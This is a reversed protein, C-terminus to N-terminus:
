PAHLFIIEGFYEPVHFDPSPTDIDSWVLFHPVPLDDGCKYFNGRCKRGALSSMSDWAFVEIPMMLTLEWSVETTGVPGGKRIAVCYDILAIRDESVLHRHEREEGYNLKCTGIVNFECNYYEREDDFSIFFEVCSDKFVPDNPKYWEAKVTNESIYYKLFICDNGHGISFRAQPVYDYEPWPAIRIPHSEQKDLVTAIEHIDSRKNLGSLFPVELKQRQM